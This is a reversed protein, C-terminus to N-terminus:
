ATSRVSSGWFSGTSCGRSATASPFVPEVPGCAHGGAGGRRDRLPLEGPRGRADHFVRHRFHRLHRRLIRDPLSHCRGHVAGCRVGRSPRRRHHLGGRHSGLVPLVHQHVRALLYPHRQALLGHRARRRRLRRRLLRGTRFPTGAHSRHLACPACAGGDETYRHLQGPLRCQRHPLLRGRHGIHAAPSEELVSRRLHHPQLANRPM